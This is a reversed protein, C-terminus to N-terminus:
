AAARGFEFPVVGEAAVRRRPLVRLRVGIRLRLRVRGRARGSELGLGLWLEIQWAAEGITVSAQHSDLQLAPEQGFSRHSFRGVGASMQWVGGEGSMCFVDSSSRSMKISRKASLPM